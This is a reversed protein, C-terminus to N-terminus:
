ETQTEKLEKFRHALATTLKSFNKAMIEIM